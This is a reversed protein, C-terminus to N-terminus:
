GSSVLWTLNHSPYLVIALSFGVPSRVGSVPIEQNSCYDQTEASKVCNDSNTDRCEQEIISLFLGQIGGLRWHFLNYLLPLALPFIEGTKPSLIKKITKNNHVYIILIILLALQQEAFVLTIFCSPTPGRSLLGEVSSHIHCMVYSMHFMVRSMHSTVCSVHFTVTPLLHVKKWSKLEGARKTQSNCTVHSVQCTVGSMHSRVHSVQCTVGSM